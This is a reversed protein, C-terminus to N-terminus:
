QRLRRSARRQAGGSAAAANSAARSAMVGSCRSSAPLATVSSSFPVSVNGAISSAIRPARWWMWMREYMMPASSTPRRMRSAQASRARAPTGGPSGAPERQRLFVLLTVDIAVGLAFALLPLLDLIRPM